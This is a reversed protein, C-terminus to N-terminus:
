KRSVVLQIAYFIVFFAITKVTLIILWSKINPFILLSIKDVIPSALFAFIFTAILVNRITSGEPTKKESTQLIKKVTAIEESSASSNDDDSPIDKLKTSKVM